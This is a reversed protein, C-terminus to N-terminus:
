KSKKEEAKEDEPSEEPIKCACETVSTRNIIAQDYHAQCESKGTPIKLVKQKEPKQGRKVKKRKKAKDAEKKAKEADKKFKELEEETLDKFKLERRLKADYLFWYDCNVPNLEVQKYYKYEGSSNDKTWLHEAVNFEYSEYGPKDIRFKYVQKIDMNMLNMPTTGARNTPAAGGAAAVPAPPPAEPAKAAQGEAPKGDAGVAPAAPQTKTVMIKEDDKVVIAQDPVSEIRLVGYKKQKKLMEEMHAKEAAEREQRKAELAEASSVISLQWIGAGAAGVILVMLILNLFSGGKTRVSLDVDQAEATLMRTVSGHDKEVPWFAFSGEDKQAPAKKPSQAPEDKPIVEPPSAEAAEAQEPEPAADAASSQAESETPTSADTSTEDQTSEVPAENNESKDNNDSMSM